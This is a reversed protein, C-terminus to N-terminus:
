SMGPGASSHTCKWLLGCGVFGGWYTCVLTDHLLCTAGLRTSLSRFLWIVVEWGCGHPAASCADQLRGRLGVSLQSGLVSEM